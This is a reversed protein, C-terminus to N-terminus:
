ISSLDLHFPMQTDDIHGEIHSGIHINSLVSECNEQSFMLAFFIDLTNPCQPTKTHHKSLGFNSFSFLNLSAMKRLQRKQIKGKYAM